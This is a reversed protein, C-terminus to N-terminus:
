YHSYRSATVFVTGASSLSREPNLYLCGVVGVESMGEGVGCVEGRARIDSWAHVAVPSTRVPVCHVFNCAWIVWFRRFLRWKRVCLFPNARRCAFEYLSSTLPELGSTPEKNHRCIGYLRLIGPVFSLPNAATAETLVMGLLLWRGWANPEPPHWQELFSWHCLLSHHRLRSQEM